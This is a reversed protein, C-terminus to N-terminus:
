PAKKEDKDKPMDGKDKDKDKDGGKDKDAAKSAPAKKAGSDGCGVTSFATAAIFAVLILAMLKKVNTRGKM